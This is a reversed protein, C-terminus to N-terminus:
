LLSLVVKSNMQMLPVLVAGARMTETAIKQLNPVVELLTFCGARKFIIHILRDAIETGIKNAFMSLGM